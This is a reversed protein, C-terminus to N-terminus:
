KKIKQYIVIVRRNIVNYSKYLLKVYNGKNYISIYLPSYTINRIIWKLIM